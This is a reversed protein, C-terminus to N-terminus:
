YNDSLDNELLIVKKGQINTRAYNIADEIREIDILKDKSLSKAFGRDLALKNTRGVVIAYDVKEGAYEAFKENEEDQKDNLEVMGPTILVKVYGDFSSLVDIANRAGLPNSNYADDIIIDNSGYPLIQLRHPVAEISKVANKITTMDVKLLLSYSIAAVLNMINYKGLLKTEFTESGFANSNFKFRAGTASYAINDAYFDYISNNSPNLGYYKINSQETIGFTENVKKRILENDGNLLIPM